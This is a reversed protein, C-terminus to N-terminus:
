PQAWQAQPTSGGRQKYRFLLTTCSLLHSSFRWCLLVPREWLVQTCGTGAEPQAGGAASASLEPMTCPLSATGASANRFSITSTVTYCM